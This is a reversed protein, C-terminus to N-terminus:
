ISSWNSIISADLCGTHEAWTCNYRAADVVCGCNATAIGQAQIMIHIHMFTSDSLLFVLLEISFTDVM